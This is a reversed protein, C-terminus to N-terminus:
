RAGAERRLGFMDVFRQAAAADGRVGVRGAAAVEALPLPGYVAAAMGNGDGSLVFPAAPVEVAGTVVEGGTVRMEFAESGFDFGAM